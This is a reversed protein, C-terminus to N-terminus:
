INMDKLVSGLDEFRMFLRFKNNEDLFISRAYGGYAADVHLYFNINNRSYDNKLQIIQDVQDIAGEETTGVVCVVGLIPIESAITEDIAQKLKNIDMRYHDDVAIQIIDNTGIGLVDAAKLWSYHKTEPVIWKGLKIIEGAIARASNNKLIDIKSQSQEFLNLTEDVSINLLDWDSKGVVLNPEIDRIAFPLSKINRAYWLGEFNAISGDTCIHSWGKSMGMLSCLDEGVEMEMVSTPASSEYAVNNANYLMAGFYGLLAPTLTEANMHGLYRPSHWPTSTTQLRSSMENLVSEIKNQTNIFNNNQKDEATVINKDNPHFNKRWNVHDNFLTILKSEFFDHNEGNVGLFLAKNNIINM